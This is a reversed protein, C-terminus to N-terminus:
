TQNYREDVISYVGQIGMVLPFRSVVGSSIPSLDIV